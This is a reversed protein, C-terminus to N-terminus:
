FCFKWGCCFARVTVRLRFELFRRVFRFRRQFGHRQRFLEGTLISVHRLLFLPTIKQPHSFRLNQRFLIYLNLWM